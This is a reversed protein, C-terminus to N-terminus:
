NDDECQHVNHAKQMDPADSYVNDGADVNDKGDTQTNVVADVYSMGVKNTGSTPPLPCQLCHVSNTRGNKITPDGCQQSKDEQSRGGGVNEDSEESNKNESNQKSNKM